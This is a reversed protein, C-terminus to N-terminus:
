IDYKRALEEIYEESYKRSNDPYRQARMVEIFEEKISKPYPKVPEDATYNDQAIPTEGMTGFLSDGGQLPEYGMKARLENVTLVGAEKLKSIDEARRPELATIEDPSYAIELGQNKQYRPMLFNTLEYYIRNAMPLIANDYLSLKSSEMNSLTMHEPSILPLPIKLATYIAYTVNKKLELFDMDKNTISMERFDVGGELLLLRGANQAGANFRDSQESLRMFEDDSLERESVLAGSPRAGRALLSLNHASAHIYQEIEYWIPMLKSMGYLNNNGQLPNFEKIHWIEKDDDCYYRFRGDVEKRTFTYSFSTNPNVQITETYGDGGASLTVFQPPVVWLELPDRNVNGIAVIFVNGTILFYATLQEFFESGTVDANPNHLLKLLPNDKIFENKVPDFLYPNLDAVEDAILQIATYLPACQQYYYIYTYMSIDNKGLRWVESFPVGAGRYKLERKGTKAKNTSVFRQKINDLINM